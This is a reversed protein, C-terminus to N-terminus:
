KVGAKLERWRDWWSKKLSKKYEAPRKRIVKMGASRKHKKGDRLKKDIAGELRELPTM